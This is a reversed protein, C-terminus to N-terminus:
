LSVHRWIDDTNANLDTWLPSAVHGDMYNLNCRVGRHRLAARPIGPTNQTATPWAQAAETTPQVPCYVLQFSVWAGNRFMEAEVILARTSPSSIQSLTPSSGYPSAPNYYDFGHKGPSLVGYGGGEGTSTAVLSSVSPCRWPGSIPVGFGPADFKWKTVEVYGGQDLLNALFTQNGNNAIPENRFPPFRGEQEGAYATMGLGLQRLNSQCRMSKASERVMTIAPLLMAALVAIISIVVLLEILTFGEQNRRPLTTRM